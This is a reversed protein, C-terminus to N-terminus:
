VTEKEKDLRHIMQVLEAEERALHCQSVLEDVSAGEKVLGIASQYLKETDNVFHPVPAIQRAQKEVISQQKQTMSDLKKSIGLAGLSLAAVDSKLHKIRDELRKGKEWQLYLVGLCALVIVQSVGLLIYTLTNM